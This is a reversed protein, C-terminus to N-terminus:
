WGIAPIGAARGYEHSSGVLQKLRLDSPLRAYELTRRLPVCAAHFYTDSHRLGM